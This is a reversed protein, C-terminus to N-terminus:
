KILEKLLKAKLYLYMYIDFDEDHEDDGDDIKYAGDIFEVRATVSHLCFNQWFTEYWLTEDVSETCSTLALQAYMYEFLYYWTFPVGSSTENSHRSWVRAFSSKFNWPIGLKFSTTGSEQFNGPIGLEFSLPSPIELCEVLSTFAILFNVSKVDPVCYIDKAQINQKGLLPGLPIRGKTTCICTCAYALM